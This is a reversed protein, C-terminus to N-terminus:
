HLWRVCTYKQTRLSWHLNVPFLGAMERHKCTEKTNHALGHLLIEPDPRSPAHTVKEPLFLVWGRFALFARPHRATSGPLFSFVFTIFPMIESVSQNPLSSEGRTKKSYKGSRGREWVVGRALATNWGRTISAGQGGLLKCPSNLVFLVMWSSPPSGQLPMQESPRWFLAEEAEEEVVGAAVLLCGVGPAETLDGARKLGLVCIM